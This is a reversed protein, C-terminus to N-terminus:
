RLRKFRSRTMLFNSLAAFRAAPYSQLVPDIIITMVPGTGTIWKAAHLTFQRFSGPLSPMQLVRGLVPAALMRIIKM